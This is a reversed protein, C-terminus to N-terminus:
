FSRAADLVIENNITTNPNWPLALEGRKGKPDVFSLNFIVKSLELPAKLKEGHIQIYQILNKEEPISGLICKSQGNVLVNPKNIVSWTGPDLQPATLELQHFSSIVQTYIDAVASEITEKGLSTDIYKGKFNNKSEIGAIQNLIKKNHNEGIGVVFLKAQAASLRHHIKSIEKADLTEDGDTLLIFTHLANADLKAINELETTARELGLIIKTRGKSELSEIQTKLKDFVSNNPTLKTAPTIVTSTKSFGIIALRIIAEKSLNVVKQASELVTKLAEKVANQRGEDNMSGSTDVCFTLAVNPPLPKMKPTTISLKVINLTSEMKVIPPQARNKRIFYIILLAIGVIAAAIIAVKHTWLFAKVTNFIGSVQVQPKDTIKSPSSKLWVVGKKFVESTNNYAAEYAVGFDSYNQISFTM